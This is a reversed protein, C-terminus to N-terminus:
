RARGRPGPRDAACPARHGTQGRRPWASPQWARKGPPGAPPRRPPPAPDTPRRQADPPPQTPARPQVPAQNEPTDPVVQLSRLCDQKPRTGGSDRIPNPAHLIKDSRKNLPISHRYRPLIQDSRDDCNPCAVLSTIDTTARGLVAGSGKVGSRVRPPTHPTPPGSHPNEHQPPRLRPSDTPSLCPEPSQAHTLPRTPTADVTHLLLTSTVVIYIYICMSRVKM